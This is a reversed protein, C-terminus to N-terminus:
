GGRDAPYRAPGQSARWCRAHGGAPLRPRCPAALCGPCYAHPDGNDNHSNDPQLGRRGGPLSFGRDLTITAPLVSRPLGAGHAGEGGAGAPLSGAPDGGSHCCPHWLPRQRRGWWYIPLADHLPLAYHVASASRVIYFVVSVA